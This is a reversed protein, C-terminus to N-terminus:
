NGLRIELRPAQSPEKVGVLWCQDPSVQYRQVLYDRVAKARLHALDVSTSGYTTITIQRNGLAPLSQELLTLNQIQATQPLFLLEPDLIVQRAAVQSNLWWIMMSAGLLTLILGINVWRLGQKM